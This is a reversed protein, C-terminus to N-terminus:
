DEKNQNGFKASFMDMFKDFKGSMQSLQSKLDEIEQAQLAEKAKEPQLKVLLDKCIKVRKEHIPAQKIAQESMNMISEVEKVVASMDTSLFIGKDHFNATIGSAPLEAFPITDNEVQVTIDTVPGNLMAMPKAPNYVPMHTNVSLVKGEIVKPENKYLVPIIAGQSLNQFM